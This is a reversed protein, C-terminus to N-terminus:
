IVPQVGLILNLCYQSKVQNNGINVNFIKKIDIDWPQSSVRELYFGKWDVETLCAHRTGPVPNECSFALYLLIVAIFSSRIM